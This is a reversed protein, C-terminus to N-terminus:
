SGPPPAAPRGDQKYITGGKMVFDVRQLLDIHRRVDGRVAIRDADTGPTIPGGADAVGM